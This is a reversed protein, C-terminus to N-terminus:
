IYEHVIGRTSAYKEVLERHEARTGKREVVIAEPRSRSREIMKTLADSSLYHLSHKAMIHGYCYNREFAAETHKRSYHGGGIGIVPRCSHAPSELFEVIALGVVEHNRPDRWEDITSGIEIFTLPKDNETPGHHTAEYSVEYIGLLDREECIDRLNLLLKHTVVPNAVGLEGPRGGYLAEGFNGPHHVTYSKVGQESSHRSLVVYEEVSSPLRSDLFSFYIADEAFGVLVFERNAFCEVAKVELECRELDYYERLYKAIGSGAPDRTSYALGYLQKFGGARRLPCGKM